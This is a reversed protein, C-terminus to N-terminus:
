ASIHVEWSGTHTCMDKVAKYSLMQGILYDVTGVTRLIKYSPLGDADRQEQKLYIKAVGSAM